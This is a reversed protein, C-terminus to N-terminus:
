NKMVLNHFIIKTQGFNYFLPLTIKLKDSFFKGANISSTMDWNFNTEKTRENIKSEVGGWFPTKYTGALSVMGLDALKAQVQGTTAWGGENNFDTLRLENIWIEACHALNDTGKKNRIGVM